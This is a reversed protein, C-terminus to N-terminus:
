NALYSVAANDIAAIEIDTANTKLAKMLANAADSRNMHNRTRLENAVSAFQENMLAQATAMEAELVLLQAASAFDNNTM